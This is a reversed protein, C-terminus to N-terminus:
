EGRSLAIGWAFGHIGGLAVWWAVGQVVGWAAGQARRRSRAAGHLGVGKM